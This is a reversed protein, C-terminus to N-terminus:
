MPFINAPTDSPTSAVPNNITSMSSHLHDDNEKHLTSPRPSSFPSSVDTEAEPNFTPPPPGPPPPPIYGNNIGQNSQPLPGAFLKAISEPPNDQAEYPPAATNGVDYIGHGMMYHDDFANNYRIGGSDGGHLPVKRDGDMGPNDIGYETGVASFADDDIPILNIKKEEGMASFGESQKLSTKTYDSTRHGTCCHTSFYNGWVLACSIVVVFVGLLGVAVVMMIIQSFNLGQHPESIDGDCKIEFDFEGTELCKAVMFHPRYGPDCDVVLMDGEYLHDLDAPMIKGYKVVPIDCRRKDRTTVQLSYARNYQQWHADTVSEGMNMDDIADVLADNLRWVLWTSAEPTTGGTSYVLPSVDFYSVGLYDGERFPIWEDKPILEVNSVGRPPTAPIHIRGVIYYENHREQRWVSINFAIDRKSWHSAGTIFGNCSFPDGINIMLVSGTPDTDIRQIVEAGHTESCQENGSYTPIPPLTQKTTPPQTQVRTTQIMPKQTTAKQTTTPATTPPATRTTADYHLLFGKGEPQFYNTMFLVDLRETEKSWWVEPIPGSFFVSIDGSLEGSVSVYDGGMVDFLSFWVKAHSPQSFTIEWAVTVGQTYAGPYNPSSIIGREDATNYGPAGLSVDYYSTIQQAGGCSQTSDGTCPANCMSTLTPTGRNGSDNGCVCESGSYLAAIQHNHRRCSDLCREITLASITSSSLHWSIPRNVYCGLYGPLTCTVAVDQRNTCAADIGDFITKACQSLNNETGDCQVNQYWVTRAINTIDSDSTVDYTSTAGQYGLQKCVVNADNVDWGTNCITGWQGNHEVEVRGKYGGEAERQLWGALRVDGDAARSSQFLFFAIYLSLTRIIMIQSTEDRLRLNCALIIGLRTINKWM